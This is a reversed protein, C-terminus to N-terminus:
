TDTKFNMRVTFPLSLSLVCCLHHLTTAFTFIWEIYFVLQAEFKCVVWCVSVSINQIWQTNTHNNARSTIQIEEDRYVWCVCVCVSVIDPHVRLRIYCLCVCVCCLLLLLVWQLREALNRLNKRMVWDCTQLENKTATTKKKDEVSKYRKDHRTTYQM